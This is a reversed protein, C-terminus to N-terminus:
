VSVSALRDETGLSARRSGGTCAARSTHSVRHGELFSKKRRLSNQLQNGNGAVLHAISGLSMYDTSLLTGLSPLLQQCGGASLRLLLRGSDARCVEPSTLNLMDKRIPRRM